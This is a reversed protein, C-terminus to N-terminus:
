EGITDNAAVVVTKSIGAEVEGDNAASTDASEVFILCDQGVGRVVITEYDLEQTQPNMVTTGTQVGIQGGMTVVMTKNPLQMAGSDPNSSMYHGDVTYNNIAQNTKRVTLISIASRGRELDREGLRYIRITDGPKLNQNNKLFEVGVQRARGGSETRNIEEKLRDRAEMLDPALAEPEDVTQLFSLKALQAM